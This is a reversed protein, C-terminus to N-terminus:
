VNIKINKYREGCHKESLSVAMPSFREEHERFKQGNKVIVNQKAIVNLLMIYEIGDPHIKKEFAAGYKESLLKKFFMDTFPEAQKLASLPSSVNKKGSLNISRVSVCARGEDARELTYELRDPFLEGCCSEATMYALVAELVERNINAAINNEANQWVETGRGLAGEADEAALKIEDALNVTTDKCYPDSIYYVQEPIVAEKLLLMVNRDIRNLDSAVETSGSRVALNISDASMAIQGASERLRACLHIFYSKMQSIDYSSNKGIYEIIYYTKESVYRIVNFTHSAGNICVSVAGDTHEGCSFLFQASNEKFFESAEAASNKWLIDLKEDAAAVPIGAAGYIQNLLNIVECGMDLSDKRYLFGVVAIIDCFFRLPSVKKLINYIKEKKM